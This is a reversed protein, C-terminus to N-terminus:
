QTNEDPQIVGFMNGGTDRCCALWGIGPIAM